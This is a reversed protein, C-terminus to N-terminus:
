SYFFLFNIKRKSSAVAYPVSTSKFHGNLTQDAKEYAEMSLFIKLYNKLSLYISTSDLVLPKTNKL